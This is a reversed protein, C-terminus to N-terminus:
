EFIKVEDKNIIEEAVVAGTMEVGVEVLEM